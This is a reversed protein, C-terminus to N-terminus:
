LALSHEWDPCSFSGCLTSSLVVMCRKMCIVSCCALNQKVYLTTLRQYKATNDTDYRYNPKTNCQLVTWKIISIAYSEYPIFWVTHHILIDQSIKSPHFVSLAFTWMSGSNWIIFNPIDISLFRLLYPICARLRLKFAM